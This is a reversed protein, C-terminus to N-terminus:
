CRFIRRKKPATNTGITSDRCFHPRLVPMIYGHKYAIGGNDKGRNTTHIIHCNPFKSRLVNGIHRKDPTEECINFFFIAGFDILPELEHCVKEFTDEYFIHYLVIIGPKQIM